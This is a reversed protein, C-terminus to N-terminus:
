MLHKLRARAVDMEYGSPRAKWRMCRGRNYWRAQGYTDWRRCLREGKALWKKACNAAKIPKNQWGEACKLLVATAPLIQYCSIEGAAGEDCNMGNTSEIARIALLMHEYPQAIPQVNEVTAYHTLGPGSLLTPWLVLLLVSFILYRM